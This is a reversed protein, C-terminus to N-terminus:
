RVSNVLFRSPPKGSRYIVPLLMMTFLSKKELRPTLIEPQNKDGLALSMLWILVVVKVPLKLALVPVSAWLLERLLPSKIRFYYKRRKM